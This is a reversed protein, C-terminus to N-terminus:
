VKRMSMYAVFFMSSMIMAIPLPMSEDKRGIPALTMCFNVFTREDKRLPM